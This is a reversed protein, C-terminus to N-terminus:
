IYDSDILYMEINGYVRTYIYIPYIYKNEAAIVDDLSQRIPCRTFISGRSSLM